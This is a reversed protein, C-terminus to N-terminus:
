IGAVSGRPNVPTGNKHIEFHVHPGTSNGTSGVAGVVTAQTVYDGVKVDIRSMHAYMSQWGDGHDITVLKGYAWISSGTASVVGSSAAYIPTGMETSMDIGPHGARFQTTLLLRPPNRLPSLFGGSFQLTSTAVSDNAPTPQATSEAAPKVPAKYGARVQGQVVAATTAKSEDELPETTVLATEMTSVAIPTVDPIVTSVLTEEAYARSEGGFQVYYSGDFRVLSVNYYVVLFALGALSGGLFSYVSQSTFMVRGFRSVLNTGYRPCVAWQIVPISLFLRGILGVLKALYFTLITLPFTVVYWFSSVLGTVDSFLRKLYM